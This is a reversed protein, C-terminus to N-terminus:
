FSGDIIAEGCTAGNFSNTLNVAAAGSANAPLGEGAMILQGSPIAFEPLIEAGCSTDIGTLTSNQCVCIPGDCEGFACVQGECDSYCSPSM